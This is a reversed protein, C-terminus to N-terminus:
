VHGVYNTRLYYFAALEQITVLVIANTSLKRLSYTNNPANVGVLEYSDAYRNPCIKDMYINHLKPSLPVFPLM